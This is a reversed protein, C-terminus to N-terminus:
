KQLRGRSADNCIGRVHQSHVHLFNVEWFFATHKSEDVTSPLLFITLDFTFAANQKSTLMFMGPIFTIDVVVGFSGSAGGLFAHWLDDNFRSTVGNEPRTVTVLSGDSLVIDFTYVYNNFRGFQRM